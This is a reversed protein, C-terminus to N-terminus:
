FKIHQLEEIIVMGLVFVCFFLYTLTIGAVILFPSKYERYVGLCYKWAFVCGVLPGLVALLQASFILLELM